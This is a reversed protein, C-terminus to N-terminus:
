FFSPHFRSSSGDLERFRTGVPVVEGDEEVELESVKGQSSSRFDNGSNWARRSTSLQGVRGGGM